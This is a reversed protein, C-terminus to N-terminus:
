VIRALVLSEVALLGCAILVLAVVSLAATRVAIPKVYDLLVDRVGIWAHALITLVYLLTAVSMGASSFWGSWEVYDKPMAFLFSLLLYLTFAAIYIATIRQVVWAKLGSAKRSM